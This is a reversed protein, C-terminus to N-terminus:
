IIHKVMFNEFEDYSEDIDALASSNYLELLMNDCINTDAEIEGIVCITTFMARAQEKVNKNDWYNQIMFDKLIDFIEKIM